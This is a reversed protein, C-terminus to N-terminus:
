DMKRWCDPCVLIAPKQHTCIEKTHEKFDKDDWVEALAFVEEPKKDPSQKIASALRKYSINGAPLGVNQEKMWRGCTLLRSVTSKERGLDRQYFDTFTEYGAEKYTENAEIETLVIALALYSNELNSNLERAQDLLTTM